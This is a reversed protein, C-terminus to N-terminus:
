RKVAYLILSKGLLPNLTDDIRRLLPPDQM